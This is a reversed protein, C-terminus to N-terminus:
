PVRDAKAIESEGVRISLHMVQNSAPYFVYSEDEVIFFTTTSEAQMHWEAGGSSSQLSLGNGDVGITLVNTPTIEYRGAYQALMTPELKVSSRKPWLGPIFHNAVMVAISDPRAGDSNALVIINLRDDVFRVYESRFGPLSGGHRVRRHGAFTDIWWGFGYATSSGDNLQQPMWMQAQTSRTVVKGVSIAADWKVMDSLSSLLAGSPRLALIRDANTLKNDRFLYGDARHPVIDSTGTTRTASMGLPKFIREALFAPWSEGSAKRIIEALIFYDLNSYAWKEGPKSLLPLGYASRIVVEDSQVKLEDFGPAERALGGTHSLAQTVTIDRWTEPADDLYKTISDHLAVKGDDVLLMIGTAIFQKSVSALKFVSDITVPVDLEVNAIGYGKIKVPKGDKIVALTLGPIHQRNMASKVDDDISDANATWVVALISVIALVVPAHAVIATKTKAPHEKGENTELTRMEIRTARERCLGSSELKM